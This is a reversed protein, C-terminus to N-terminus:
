NKGIKHKNNSVGSSICDFFGYSFNRLIHEFSFRDLNVLLLAISGFYISIAKLWLKQTERRAVAEQQQQKDNQNYFLSPIRLRMLFDFFRMEMPFISSDKILLKKYKTQKREFETTTTTTPLLELILTHFRLNETSM